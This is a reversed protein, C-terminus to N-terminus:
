SKIYIDRKRKVRNLVVIDLVIQLLHLTWEPFNVKREVIWVGGIGGWVYRMDVEKGKGERRGRGKGGEWREDDRM